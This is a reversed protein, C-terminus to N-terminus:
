PNQNNLVVHTDTDESWCLQLVNNFKNCVRQFICIFGKNNEEIAYNRLKFTVM